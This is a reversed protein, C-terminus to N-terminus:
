PIFHIKQNKFTKGGNIDVAPTGDSHSVPRYTIATGDEMIRLIKGDSLKRETKFGQTIEEFFELAAKDGGSMNRVRSSGSKGVEGFYGHENPKFKSTRELTQQIESGSAESTLGVTRGQGGGPKAGGGLGASLGLLEADQRERWVVQYTAELQGPGTAMLHALGVMARYEASDKEVKGTEVEYKRVLGMYREVDRRYREKTEPWVRPDTMVAEFRKLGAEYIAESESLERIELGTWSWSGGGARWISWKVDDPVNPNNWYGSVGAEYRVMGAWGTDGDRSRGTPDVYRIPNGEVYAYRNLSQGQRIDGAVEDRSLFRKGEPDYYRARMYYLGSADTIVGDRGNYMLANPTTGERVLLEGYPGYRYRDTVAGYVDTLVTTSGRRDFHYVAYTGSAGDERGILGLGYVYYALPRGSGDIEMLVRPQPGHPDTVYYTVGTVTAVSTRINEADYTYTVDGARVLRNRADYVWTRALGGATEGVTNGDADYTRERDAYRVLRNDAGYAM